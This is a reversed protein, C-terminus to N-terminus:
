SDDEPTVTFIDGMAGYTRCHVRQNLDSSLMRVIKKAVGDSCYVFFDNGMNWIHHYTKEM